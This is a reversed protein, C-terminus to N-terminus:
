QATATVTLFTKNTTGAPVGEPIGIAVRGEHTSGPTLIDSVLFQDTNGTIPFMGSNDYRTIYAKNCDEWAAVYHGELPGNSAKTETWNDNATSLTYTVSNTTLDRNDGTDTENKLVLEPAGNTTTNCWSQDNTTGNGSLAWLYNGTANRWYGHSQYVDGSPDTVGNPEGGASETINWTLSGALYFPGSNNKIWLFRGAAYKSSNGTGLPNVPESELTDLHAYIDTINTSGSNSIVFQLDDSDSFNSTGVEVNSFNYAAPDISVETTESISVSVNTDNSEAAVATGTLPSGTLAVAAAIAVAAIGAVHVSTVSRGFLTM